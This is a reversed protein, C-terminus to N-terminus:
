EHALFAACVDNALLRGRRTLRVESHSQELLGGDRYREIVAAYRSLFDFGYLEKFAAFSVGQATRLALMVAEGARADGSLREREGPITRRAAAAAIYAGLERTHMSRTGNRYSAAGVGLGVYEGNRWYNENHRCRHGPRAFNSIEYHEYGAEELADIAMEYLHAEAGDTMFAGPEKERWAAYPTGEEVTLGYVSVHDVNLRLAADLEQAM